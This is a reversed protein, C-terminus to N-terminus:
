EKVTCGTLIVPEGDGNVFGVEASADAGYWTPGDVSFIAIADNLVGDRGEGCRKEEFGEVKNALGGDVCTMIVAPLFGLCEIESANVHIPVLCLFSVFLIKGM